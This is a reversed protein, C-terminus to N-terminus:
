SDSEPSEGGGDRSEGDVTWAIASTLITALRESREAAPIGATTAVDAWVSAIIAALDAPAVRERRASERAARFLEATSDSAPASVSATLAARVAAYTSPAVANPAPRRPEHENM